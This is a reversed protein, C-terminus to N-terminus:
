EMAVIIRHAPHIPALGIAEERVHQHCKVCTLTMDVYALAAADINKNKAAKQVAEIERQFDGSFIEYERTKLVMWSAQHRLIALEDAASKMKAFDSLALGELLKQAQSLKKKMVSEKSKAATPEPKKAPPDDAFSTVFLYAVAMGVGAAIAIARFM